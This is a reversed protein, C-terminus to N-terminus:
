WPGAKGKGGYWVRRRSTVQWWPSGEWITIGAIDFCWMGTYLTLYDFLIYKKKQVRAL